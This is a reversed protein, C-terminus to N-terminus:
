SSANVIIFEANFVFLLQLEGWQLVLNDAVRLLQVSHDHVAKQPVDSVIRVVLDVHYVVPPVVQLLEARDVRSEQCHPM